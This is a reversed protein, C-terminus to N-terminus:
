LWEIDKWTVQNAQVPDSDLMQHLARPRSIWGIKRCGEVFEHMNLRQQGNPALASWADAGTEYNTILYSRFRELSQATQMNLDALSLYGKEYPDLDQWLKRISGDYGLNRVGQCFEVYTINGSGDKDLRLRWARVLNGCFRKIHSLFENLSQPTM